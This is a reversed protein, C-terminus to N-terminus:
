YLLKIRLDQGKINAVYNKGTKLNRAFAYVEM